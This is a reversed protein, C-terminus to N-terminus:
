NINALDPPLNSGPGYGDEIARADHEAARRPNDIPTWAACGGLSVLLLLCIGRVLLGTTLAPSNQHNMLLSYRVGRVVAEM